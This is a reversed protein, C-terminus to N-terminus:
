ISSLFTAFTVKKQLCVCIRPEYYSFPSPRFMAEFKRLITCIHVISQGIFQNIHYQDRAVNNFTGDNAYVNEPNPM